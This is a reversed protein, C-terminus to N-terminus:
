AMCSKLTGLLSGCTAFKCRRCENGEWFLVRGPPSLETAARKMPLSMASNKASTTPDFDYVSGSAAATATRADAHLCRGGILFIGCLFLAHASRSFGHVFRESADGPALEAGALPEVVRM